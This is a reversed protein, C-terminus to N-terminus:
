QGPKGAAYWDLASEFDRWEDSWPWLLPKAKFLARFKRRTADKDLAKDLLRQALMSPNWRHAGQGRGGRQTLAPLAWAPLEGLRKKWRTEDWSNLGDFLRAVESTELGLAAAITPASLPAPVAKTASDSAAAESQKAEGTDASEASLACAIELAERRRHGGELQAQARMEVNIMEAHARLSKWNRNNGIKGVVDASKFLERVANLAERFKEAAPDANAELGEVFRDVEWLNAGSFIRTGGHFGPVVMIALSQNDPDRYLYGNETQRREATRHGIWHPEKEM